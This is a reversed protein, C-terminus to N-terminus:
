KYLKKAIEIKKEELKSAATESLAMKLSETAAELNKDKFNNIVEKVSM